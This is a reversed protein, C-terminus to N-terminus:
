SLHRELFLAEEVLGHSRYFRQADENDPMTTVSVEVCGRARAFDMLAVLLAGGVGRGRDLDHVILEEVLATDGAHFLNPRVTYSLLGVIRGGDAALLVGCHPNALYTRVYEQEIPTHWGGSDSLERVLAVIAAEDGPRAPRIHLQTEM